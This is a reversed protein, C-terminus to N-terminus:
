GSRPRWPSPQRPRVARHYEACGTDGSSSGPARRVVAAVIEATSPSRCLGRSRRQRALRRPEWAFRTIATTSRTRSHAEARRAEIRFGLIDAVREGRTTTSSSTPRSPRATPRRRQRRPGLAAAVGTERLRAHAARIAASYLSPRGGASRAPLRSARMSARTWSLRIFARIRAAAALERPPEIEVLAEGAGRWLNRVQRFAPGFQFGRAALEQCYAAHDLSSRAARAAVRPEITAARTAVIRDAYGARAAGVREDPRRPATSRSPRTRPMSFSRFRSPDTRPSFCRRRSTSTSSQMRSAPLCSAGSRGPGDRRLRRRPLGGHGLHPPGESLALPLLDLLVQWTPVASEIRQGLLPHAPPALRLRALGAIRVLVIRSALSLAAPLRVRRQGPQRGDLRRWRRRCSAGGPERCSTAITPRAGSRTFCRAAAGREALCEKISSELAPHPGIELFTRDGDDISGTSRRASSSRSAFTRGGTTRTSRNAARDARRHRDLHVPIRARRPEIGALAELLEERIPDMQARIFRTTTRAALAHVRRRAPARREIEELPEVDGALTMLRPSNVAALEVGTNTASRQGRRTERVARGGAHTRRRVDHAAAPRSPHHDAGCRRTFLRRRLVRRGSRRRQPRDVKAPEIGWRSGCSSSRWRCRSSRRSRSTPTISARDAESACCRTSCRGGPAHPQVRRTSEDCRTASCRSAHRAAPPGDGVVAPGPRHLRFRRRPMCRAPGRCAGASATAFGRTRLPQRLEDRSRASSARASPRHHEKRDGASACLDPLARAVRRPRARERYRAVYRACRADTARPSRCCIRVRREARARPADDARTAAAGSRARRACQNRRLRVLQRRRRPPRRQRAAAAATAIAVELRSRRVPDRTRSSTFHLEAPIQRHHLVLAAKILGAIGSAPELHGINTKVSGILCPRGHPADTSRARRGAGRGRDSRRGAHRHRAGGRVRRRAPSIGAQRYRERSCRRRRRRPEPVTMASTHGDQNVAAAFSARLHPRRRRARPSRSSSCSAPARRACTAM